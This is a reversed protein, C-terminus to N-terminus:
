LVAKSTLGAAVLVVNGAQLLLDSVELILHGAVQALVLVQEIDFHGQVHLNGGVPLQQLALLAPSPCLSATPEQLPTCQPGRGSRFRPEPDGDCSRYVINYLLGGSRQNCLILWAM